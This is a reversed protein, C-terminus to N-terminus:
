SIPAYRFAVIGAQEVVVEFQMRDKSPVPGITQEKTAVVKGTADLFEFRAKFTKEATSRNEVNGVLRHTTGAHDFASFSVAVPNRRMAGSLGGTSATNLKVGTGRCPYRIPTGNPPALPPM